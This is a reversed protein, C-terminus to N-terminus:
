QKSIANGSRRTHYAYAVVLARLLRYRLVHDRSKVELIERLVEKAELEELVRSEVIIAEITYRDILDM